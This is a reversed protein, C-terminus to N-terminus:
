NRGAKKSFLKMWEDVEARTLQKDYKDEASPSTSAAALERVFQQSALIQAGCQRAFFQIERDSSVVTKGHNRSQTDVMRKIVDDATESPGPFVARIAPYSKVFGNGDFVVTIQVNRIAVYSSLKMMLRERASEIDQGMQERIDPMQHMLNYGDILIEKRM